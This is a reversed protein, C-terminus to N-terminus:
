AVRGIFHDRLLKYGEYAKSGKALVLYSLLELPKRPEVLVWTEVTLDVGLFGWDQLLPRSRETVTSVLVLSDGTKESTAQLWSDESPIWAMERVRKRALVEEDKWLYAVNGEISGGAQVFTNLFARFNMAASTKNDIRLIRAIVNSGPKTLYYGELVIGKLDKIHKGLKTSVKVGTWGDREAKECKFQEEHIKDYKRDKWATFRMGGFWPNQYGYPKREPFASILHEVGTEKDILSYATGALSPCVKMLLRGNDVLFIDKGEEETNSVQVMGKEGLVLLRFPSQLSTLRTSIGINGSYVGPSIKRSPSLIVPRKYPDELKVDRIKVRRPEISWGKPPKLTLNGNLAKGRKNTVVLDAKVEGLENVICPEIRAEVLPQSEIHRYVVEKRTQGGILRRWLERVRRWTGFGAVIYIPKLTVTSQPQVVEPKFVLEAASKCEVWEEPHWLVGFVEGRNHHDLCFWTESFDEPKEPIDAAWHPFDGNVASSIIGQKLPVVIRADSPDGWTGMSLQFDHKAESSSNLFSYQIKILETAPFLTVDKVVRLGEYTELDAYLRARIRGDERIIEYEFDKREMETPWFPPGIADHLSSGYYRDHLKGHISHIRGGRRLGIAVRTFENELALIRGDDEVAALVGGPTFSKVPYVREKTKVEEQGDKITSYFGLPMVMTGVDEPIKIRFTAGAYGEALVRFRQNLPSVEVSPHPVVSLTGQVSRKINSKMIVRLDGESGPYGSFNWPDFSLEIPPKLRIGTALPVLIGDVFLNTEIRHAPEDNEKKEAKPDIKVEGDLIIQQSPELAFFEPPKRSIRIGEETTVLLSCQTRGGTKNRVQWKIKQPFGRPAEHEAPWCMASIRDDEIGAISFSERDITVRLEDGGKEWRCVFVNMGKEKMDDEEVKLDRKFDGYWDPHKDFFRKTVPHNLIAPVYNQMYVQTGPVWFFGTKKYLPVAKLNGPWTHLDLREFGFEIARKVGQFLLRRGLSKGHYKPHLNLFGIYGAKKDRWHEHVTCVGIIQGNFTLLLYALAKERKADESVREATYPVGRTFGGPWNEDSENFLRALGEADKEDFTRIVIKDEGIEEEYVLKSM